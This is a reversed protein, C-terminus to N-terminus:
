APAATTSDSRRRERTRGTLGGARGRRWVRERCSARGIQCPPPPLHIAPWDTLAPGPRNLPITQPARDARWRGRTVHRALPYGRPSVPCQFNNERSDLYPRPPSPAAPAHRESSGARPPAIPAPAPRDPPVADPNQRLCGRWPSRYPNDVASAAHPPSQPEAGSSPLAVAIARSRLCGDTVPV